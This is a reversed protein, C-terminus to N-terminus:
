IGEAFLTPQERRARVQALLRVQPSSRAYSEMEDLPVWAWGACGLAQLTAAQPEEGNGACGVGLLTIRRTTVGHKVVGVREGARASVGM